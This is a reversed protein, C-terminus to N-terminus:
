EFSMAIIADVNIKFSFQRTRLHHFKWFVITQSLRRSHTGEKRCSLTTIIVFILLARGPSQSYKIFQGFTIVAVLFSPIERHLEGEARAVTLSYLFTIIVVVDTIIVVVVVCLRLEVIDIPRHAVHRPIGFM